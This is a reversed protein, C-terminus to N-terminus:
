QSLRFDIVQRKIYNNADEIDSFFVKRNSRSILNVSYQLQTKYAFLDSSLLDSIFIDSVNEEVDLLLEPSSINELVVPEVEVFEENIQFDLFDEFSLHKFISTQFGSFFKTFVGSSLNITLTNFFYFKNLFLAYADRFITYKLYRESAWKSYIKNFRYPKLQKNAIEEVKFSEQLLDREDDSLISDSSKTSNSLLFDFYSLYLKLQTRFFKTKRRKLLSLFMGNLGCRKKNMKKSRRFNLKTFRRFFFNLSNSFLFSFDDLVTDTKKLNFFSVAFVSFLSVSHQMRLSSFSKRLSNRLNYFTSSNFGLSVSTSLQFRIDRLLQMGFFNYRSGLKNVSLTGVVNLNKIELNAKKDIGTNLYYSFFLELLNTLISLDLEYNFKFLSLYFSGIFSKDVFEHLKQEIKLVDSLEIIDFYGKMGAYITLIQKEVPLPKYQGQKLLEVLHDGRNLLSKTGEDLNAGFKSFEKRERYQALELKMSGCIRKMTLVQAASGVRSVSLGPNVAPKIGKYFLETELYIQGDTISIVNTPIYASVDGAQTEIIPLATLSGGSYLKNAFNFSKVGRLKAARELLRSHLYFVDGPFAERGPPRRLLLSMQRYSVAQKSLDDYIIVAHRGSDRFYEAISSGAYPALYQMSAPDSATAAVIVSYSFALAKELTNMIQVVTSRKQGVAVYVCYCMRKYADYIEQLKQILNTDFFKFKGPNTIELDFFVHRQSGFEMNQYLTSVAFALLKRDFLEIKSVNLGTGNFDYYGEFLKFQISRYLANTHFVKTRPFINLIRLNRRTTQNKCYLLFDAVSAKLNFNNYYGQNIITDVAIATKGTQRDGIILERQGRGIPVLSDISKIGTQLPENVSERIIIGPAAREIRYRLKSFISGKGDIPFGLADVVRGLFGMGVGISLIQNATKVWSREKTRYEQGFIILGVNGVELNLAMATLGGKFTVSAGAKVRELGTVRAIGDGVSRSRGTYFDRKRRGSSFGSLRRKKSFIKILGRLQNRQIAAKSPKPKPLFKEILYALLGM